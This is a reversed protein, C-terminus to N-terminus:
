EAVRVMAPRLVRDGLRYGRQLVQTVTGSEAEGDTDVGVAEHFNPDFAQSLAEIETVGEDQMFRELKRQIMAVGEFWDNRQDHPIADMARHFDDLIPLLRTLVNGTAMRQQEVREQEVRKRYNQFSARERKLSDLYEEARLEAQELQATLPLEGEEVLTDEVAPAGPDDAAAQEDPVTQTTEDEAVPDATNEDVTQEDHGPEPHTNDTKVFRAEPM